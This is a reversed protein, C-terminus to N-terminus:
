SLPLRAILNRIAACFEAGGSVQWLADRASRCDLQRARMAEKSAIMVIKSFYPGAETRLRASLRAHDRESRIADKYTIALISRGRLRKPLALWADRESAKWAQVAPTCWMATNARRCAELARRDLGDCGTAFGPTELLRCSKLLDMPLGLRMRRIDDIPTRAMAGWDTTVHRRNIHELVLSPKSAYSVLVPLRVQDSFGTPLVDSGLLANILSSKGSRAEGTVAVCPPQLADRPQPESSYAIM